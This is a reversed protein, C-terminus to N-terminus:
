RLNRYVDGRPAIKVVLVVLEEDEVAYIIRWDGVRARRFETGEVPRTGPHRPDQALQNLEAYIRRILDPTLRDIVKQARKQIVIRWPAGPIM